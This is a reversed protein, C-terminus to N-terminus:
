PAHAMEPEPGGGECPCAQHNRYARGTVTAFAPDCRISARDQCRQGLPDITMETAFEAAEHQHVIMLTLRGRGPQHRRQSRQTHRDRFTLHLPQQRFLVIVEEHFGPVNQAGPKFCCRKHGDIVGARAM